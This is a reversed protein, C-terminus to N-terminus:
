FYYQSIEKKRKKLRIDRIYERSCGFQVAIKPDSLDGQAILKCINEIDRNLLTNPIATGLKPFDYNKTIHKWSEKNRIHQIQKKSRGTIKQIEKTSKKQMILECIEIADEETMKALHCKEGRFSDCLGEKWAHNSNEKQTVWELNFSANHHKVGDKHNPVLDEFSLGKELHRKPIKCFYMAVLRHITTSYEHRNGDKDYHVIKAAYYRSKSEKFDKIVKTKKNKLRGFNSIKYHTRIGDVTIWKWKEKMEDMTDQYKVEKLEEDSYGIYIKGM